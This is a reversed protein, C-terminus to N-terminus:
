ENDERYADISDSIEDYDITFQKTKTNYSAVGYLDEGMFVGVQITFIYEGFHYEDDDTTSMYRDFDIDEEKYIDRLKKLGELYEKDQSKKYIDFTDKLEKTSIEDSIFSISFTHTVREHGTTKDLWYENIELKLEESEVRDIMEDVSIKITNLNDLVKNFDNKGPVLSYQIQCTYLIKYKENDDVETNITHGKSDVLYRYNNVRAFQKVDFLSDSFIDSSIAKSTLFDAYQQSTGFSEKIFDNYKKLKM